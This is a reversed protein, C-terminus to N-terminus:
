FSINHTFLTDFRGKRIEIREGTVPHQLDFWFTGSVINKEFDLKTITLEGTYESDTTLVKYTINPISFAGGGWVNGEEYRTLLFTEKESIIMNFTAIDITWFGNIKKEVEGSIHFYYGGDVLQYYAHPPGGKDIFAKGNVYCAFTGAGTQTAPPLTHNNDDSKCGSLFTTIFLLLFLNKV